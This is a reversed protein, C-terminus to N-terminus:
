KVQLRLSTSPARKLRPVFPPDAVYCFGCDTPPIATLCTSREPQHALVPRPVSTVAPCISTISRAIGDALFLGPRTWRQPRAFGSAQTADTCASSFDPTSHGARHIRHIPWRKQQQQEPEASSRGDRDGTRGRGKSSNAVTRPFPIAAPSGTEEYQREPLRELIM